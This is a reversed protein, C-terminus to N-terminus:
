VGLDSEFPLFVTIALSQGMRVTVFGLIIRGLTLGLWFGTAAMGSSFPDIHRQKILYTVTWGGITVEIGVYVLLFLACTWTM